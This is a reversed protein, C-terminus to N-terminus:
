LIPRQQSCCFIRMITGIYERIFHIDLYIRGGDGLKARDEVLKDQVIIAIQDDAAKTADKFNYGNDDVTYGDYLLFHKYIDETGVMKKSVEESPFLIKSIILAVMAVAAVVLAVIIPMKNKKM